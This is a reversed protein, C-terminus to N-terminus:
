PGEVQALAAEAQPLWFTMAMARYLEIAMSLEARAEARRGMQLYLTGLGLHGHAQLPRMGLREALTLAERYRAEARQVDRASAHAHVAGLQFLAHAEIGRAQQQRALDLAQCAHQRAEDLRGGLLDVASLRRVHVAYDGLAGADIAERHAEELLVLGEALRGARAYAEGLGGAMPTFWTRHGSARCLALGQELVPVAAELDGKDLSLFGLCAHAAIPADGRGDIMALRLAAEGHRRGEAFEGLLSLVRALSAQSLIGWYGVPWFRVPGPTGHALAEVNSRLVAAAREFDGMGYYVLGLRFSAQAQLAPDGLTAALELTQRGAALAGELDGQMRRIVSMTSLVRGLWVREDLQRARAEAEDLLTLSRPYEGWVTLVGALYTRLEIALVATDPTEPVHGLADLTQEYDTRAERFAGRDLARCGAQRGYTVAKEWVEGQIAHHALREVQEALRGPDRGELAEVIRAHLTRRRAQLLSGYAV